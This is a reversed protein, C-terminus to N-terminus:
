SRYNLRWRNRIRPIWRVAIAILALATWAEARYPHQQWSVYAIVLRTFLVLAFLQPFQWWFRRRVERCFRVLFSLFRM